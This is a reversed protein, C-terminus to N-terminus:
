VEQVVDGGQVLQWVVGERHRLKKGNAEAVQVTLGRVWRGNIQRFRMSLFNALDTDRGGGLLAWRRLLRDLHKGMACGEAAADSIEKVLSQATGRWTPNWESLTGLTDSMVVEEESVYGEADMGAVPDPLGAGIVAMRVIKSWSEFRTLARAPKLNKKGNCIESQPM